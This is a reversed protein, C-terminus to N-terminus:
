NFLRGQPPARSQPQRKHLDSPMKNHLHDLIKKIVAPDEICAVMKITGGCQDCTEVDINFVRKLRQAWSMLARRVAPSKDEPEDYPRIKRGKGRKGPTVLARHKSNPAFVGHFRTLNVRPKPVLAALKSIFDLPEFLVHTTGDRYPTKLEYRVMANRTLSLRKEAVPPRAIYRCIRELKEREHAKSAVGAHLSFGEVNGGWEDAQIAPLTQLTFVKRGKRPGVAIRYTVSAGHLQQMPDDEDTNVNTLYSHETDRVLLGQRELLRGVRTAITHTLRTIEESSPSKIWQFHLASKPQKAQVYVGDLFLMHLHVNLNLASGFRQILTVAGTHAATKTHGSKKTIHTSIARYVIGLAKGMIVPQSAFLFRLQFPVSLVWQRMPRQPLIHDVLLAASEAMRRAGCSPCFGRHKCSFGLLREAHCTDCRLRLFGHELRGCKLYDDFERLVYKPLPKGQESLLVVLEPYYREVLQYLLTQEPRHREYGIANTGANKALRVFDQAM